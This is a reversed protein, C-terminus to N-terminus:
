LHNARISSGTTQARRCMRMNSLRRMLKSFFTSNRRKRGSYDKRFGNTCFIDCNLAPCPQPSENCACYECGNEDRKFGNECFMRCM